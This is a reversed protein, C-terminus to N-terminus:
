QTGTVSLEHKLSFYFPRSISRSDTLFCNIEGPGPKIRVMATDSNHHIGRAVKFIIIVCATLGGTIETVESCLM